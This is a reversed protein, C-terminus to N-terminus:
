SQLLRAFLRQECAPDACCECVGQWRGLIEPRASAGQLGPALAYVAQQLLSAQDAQLSQYPRELLHLQERWHNVRHNSVNDQPNRWLLYLASAPTHKLDEPQAPCLFVLQGEASPLCRQLQHALQQRTSLDGGALVVTQV